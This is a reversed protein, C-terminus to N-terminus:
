KIGDKEGEFLDCITLDDYKSQIMIELNKIHLGIDINLCGVQRNLKSFQRNIIDLQNITKISGILDYMKITNTLIILLELLKSVTKETDKNIPISLTTNIGNSTIFLPFKDQLSCAELLRELDKSLISMNKDETYKCQAIITNGVVDEEKKANGSGKPKVSNDKSLLEETYDELDQWSSIM